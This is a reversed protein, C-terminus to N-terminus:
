YVDIKAIEYAAALRIGKAQNNAPATVRLRAEQKTPVDEIAIAYV